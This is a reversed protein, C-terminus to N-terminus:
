KLTDDCKSSIIHFLFAQLSKAVSNEALWM